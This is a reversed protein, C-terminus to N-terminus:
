FNRLMQFFPSVNADPRAHVVCNLEVEVDEGIRHYWNQEIDIEPPDLFISSINSENVKLSHNGNQKYPLFFSHFPLKM